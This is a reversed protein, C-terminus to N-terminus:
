KRFENNFLDNYKEACMSMSYPEYSKLVKRKMDLLEKENLDLFCKLAQYYAEESINDALFGNYGNMIVDVIGGVPTCIPITGMGLAEILSIPMGEYTSCLCFADAMKLYELPNHKEGLMLVWECNEALVKKKVEEVRVGGIMLVTFDYGEEKLKRAVRAMMDQRKVPDIRALQVLVRTHKTRRYGMFENAVAKSINLEAPVNRGNIIMTAPKRYFAEFSKESEPSITIPKILGTHFSIKRILRSILNGCEKEAANHVTHFFKVKKNMILASFLLYEIGRLHTHVIDPKLEKILKRIRFIFLLDFGKKKNMEILRVNSFLEDKYFGSNNLPHFVMLILDHSKTLENCLDVTFREAGGSSLQPIIEIIKM